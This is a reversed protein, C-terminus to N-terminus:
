GCLPLRASARTPAASSIAARARGPVGRARSTAEESGPSGHGGVVRAGNGDGSRHARHNGGKEGVVDIIRGGEPQDGHGGGRVRGSRRLILLSVVSPNNSTSLGAPIVDCSTTSAARRANPSDRM